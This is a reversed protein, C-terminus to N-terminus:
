ILSLWLSRQRTSIFSGMEFNSIQPRQKKLKYNIEKQNRPLKKKEEKQQKLQHSHLKKDYVCKALM